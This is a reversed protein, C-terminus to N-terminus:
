PYLQKRHSMLQDGVVLRVDVREFRLQAHPLALELLQDGTTLVRFAGDPGHLRELTSHHRREVHLHGQALDGAERPIEDGDRFVVCEMCCLCADHHLVEAVLALDDEILSVFGIHSIHDVEERRIHGPKEDIADVEQLGHAFALGGLVPPDVVEEPPIRLGFCRRRRVHLEVVLSQVLMLLLGNASAQPQRVCRREIQYESGRPRPLRGDDRLDHTVRDLFSQTHEDRGVGVDGDIVHELLEDLVVRFRGAEREPEAVDPLDSRRHSRERYRLLHLRGLCLVHAIEDALVLHEACGQERAHLAIQLPLERVEHDDVLRRLRVQAERKERQVPRVADDEYAIWALEGRDALLPCRGLDALAEELLDEVRVAVPEAGHEGDLVARVAPDDLVGGTEDVLLPGAAFQDVM